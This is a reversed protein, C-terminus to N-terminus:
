LLALQENEQLVLRVGLSRLSRLHRRDVVWREGHGLEAVYRCAAFWEPTIGGVLEVKRVREVDDNGDPEGRAPWALVGLDVRLQGHWDDDLALRYGRKCGYSVHVSRGDLLVFGRGDKRGQGGLHELDVPLGTAKSFAWQALGSKYDNTYPDGGYARAARPMGSRARAFDGIARLDLEDLTIVTM